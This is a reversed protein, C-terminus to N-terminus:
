QAYRFLLKPSVGIQSALKEMLDQTTDCLERGHSSPTPSTDKHMNGGAKTTNRHRGM